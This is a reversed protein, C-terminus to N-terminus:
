YIFLIFYFTSVFFQMSNDMKNVIQTEPKGTIYIRLPWLKISWYMCVHLLFNRIEFAKKKNKKTRKKKTRQRMSEYYKINNLQYSEKVAVKFYFYTFTTSSSMTSNYVHSSYRYKKVRM